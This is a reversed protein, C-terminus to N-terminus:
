AQLAPALFAQHASHTKKGNFRMLGHLVKCIHLCQTRGGKDERERQRKSENEQRVRM